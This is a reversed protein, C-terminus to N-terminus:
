IYGHAPYLGGTPLLGVLEWCGRCCEGLLVQEDLGNEVGAVLQEIAEPQDGTPQYSSVLKFTDM